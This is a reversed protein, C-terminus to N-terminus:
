VPSECVSLVAIWSRLQQVQALAKVRVGERPHPSHTDVHLPSWLASSDDGGEARSVWSPSHSLHWLNLTGKPRRSRGGVEDDEGM